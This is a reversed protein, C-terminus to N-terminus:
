NDRDTSPTTMLRLYEVIVAIRTRQIEDVLHDNVDAALAWRDRQSDGPLLYPEKYVGTLWPRNDRWYVYNRVWAEHLAQASSLGCTFMAHIQVAFVDYGFDGPRMPRYVWNNKEASNRHVLEVWTRMSKGHWIEDFDVSGDATTTAVAVAMGSTVIYFWFVIL